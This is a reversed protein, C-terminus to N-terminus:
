EVYIHVKGKGGQVDIELDSLADLLEEIDGAKLKRVDVDIGKKNLAENIGAAADSPILAPLKMGARVLALPVRINVREHTEGNDAEASPEIIIRLYKPPSRRPANARREISDSGRASAMASLLREAEDVSIKGEALMDLIRMRDQAM